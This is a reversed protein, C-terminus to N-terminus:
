SNNVRQVPIGSERLSEVSPSKGCGHPGTILISPPCREGNSRVMGAAETLFELLRDAIPGFTSLQQARGSYPRPISEIERIYIDTGPGVVGWGFLNEGICTIKVEENEAFSLVSGDHIVKGLLM